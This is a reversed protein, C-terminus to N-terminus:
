RISKWRYGYYTCLVPLIQLNKLNKGTMKRASLPTKEKLIQRRQRYTTYVRKPNINSSKTNSAITNTTTNRASVSSVEESSSVISNNDFSNHCNHCLIKFSVDNGNDHDHDYNFDNNNNDNNNNQEEVVVSMMTSTTRHPPYSYPM